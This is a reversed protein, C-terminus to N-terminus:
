DFAGRTNTLGRLQHQPSASGSFVLDRAQHATASLDPGKAMQALARIRQGPNEQQQSSNGYQHVHFQVPHLMSGTPEGSTMPAAPSTPGTSGSFIPHMTDMM